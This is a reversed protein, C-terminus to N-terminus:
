GRLILKAQPNPIKHPAASESVLSRAGTKGLHQKGRLATLSHPQESGPYAVGYFCNSHLLIHALQEHQYSKWATINQNTSQRMTTIKRRIRLLPKAPIM